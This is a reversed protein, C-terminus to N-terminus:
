KFLHCSVCRPADPQHKDLGKHCTGCLQRQNAPLATNHISGHCQSCTQHAKKAHLGALGGTAHCGTCSPAFFVGKDGHASHCAECGGNIAGHSAKAKDAHCSTCSKGVTGTHPDTHCSTCAQHGAPAQKQQKEHCSGCTTIFRGGHPEHCSRCNRHPAIASALKTGHCRGCQSSGELPRHPLGAHCDTCNGHQPLSATASVEGQHCSSCLGKNSLSIRFQHPRHCDRCTTESGHFDSDSAAGHHCHSCTRAVKGAGMAPHPTHCTSCAEGGLAAPHDTKQGAHCSVCARTIGASPAHPDHCNKCDAHQPIRGGGLVPTNEHCTRCAVANEPAYDHPRHCAICRDHGGEFIATAPVFPERTAHCPACNDGALRAPAHQNQHCTSCIEGFSREKGDATKSFHSTEIDEHCKRCDSPEAQPVEHPRHCTDCTSQAHIVVAPTDGQDEAHCRMCDWATFAEPHNESPVYAHCLTCDAPSDSGFAKKADALDHRIAGEKEHCKVCVAPKPIDMAEGALDHCESCAIEHDLVHVRHGVIDRAQHWSAAVTLGPGSDDGGACAGTFAATCGAILLWTAGSFSSRLPGTLSSRRLSM